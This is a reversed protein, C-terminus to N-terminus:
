RSLVGRGAAARIAENMRANAAGSNQNNKDDNVPVRSKATGALEPIDELAEKLDARIERETKSGVSVFRM